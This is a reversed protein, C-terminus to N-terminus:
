QISVFLQLTSIHPLKQNRVLCGTLLDFHRQQYLSGASPFYNSQIKVSGDIRSFILIRSKKFCWKRCLSSCDEHM